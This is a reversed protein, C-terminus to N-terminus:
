TTCQTARSLAFPLLVACIAPHVLSTSNKEVAGFLALAHTWHRVERGEERPLMFQGLEGKKKGGRGREKEKMGEEDMKKVTM